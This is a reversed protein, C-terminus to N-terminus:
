PRSKQKSRQKSPTLLARTFTFFAAVALITGDERPCYAYNFGSGREASPRVDNEPPFDEVVITLKARRATGNVSSAGKETISTRRQRFFPSVENMCSRSGSGQSYASEPSSAGVAGGRLPPTDFRLVRSVRKGNEAASQLTKSGRAQGIMRLKERLEMEQGRPSNELRSDFMGLIQGDSMSHATNPDISFYKYANILESRSVFGESALMGIEMNFDENQRTQAIEAICDYYYASAEPNYEVQRRFAYMLLENSFDSLAGLGAYLVDDTRTLDIRLRSTSKNYAVTGLLENIAVEAVLPAPPPHKLTKKEEYTFKRLSAYLEEQVDEVLVRLTEGGLPDPPPPDPLEWSPEEGEIKRFGLWLLLTDCEQGFSLKFRKNHMPIRRSKGVPGLSDRLYTALAELVKMGTQPELGPRDGDAYEAAQFRARLAKPDTLLAYYRPTLRPPRFCFDLRSRCVTCKFHYAERGDGPKQPAGDLVFHHLPFGATPCSSRGSALCPNYDITLDLHWVCKQCIASVRNVTNSRRDSNLLTQSSILTLNHHCDLSSAEHDSSIDGSAFGPPPDTFPNYNLRQRADYTRIDALLRPGTKGLVPYDALTWVVECVMVRMFAGPLPGLEGAGTDM